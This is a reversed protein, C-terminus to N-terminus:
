AKNRSLGVEFEPFERMIVHDDWGEGDLRVPCRLNANVTHLLKEAKGCAPISSSYKQDGAADTHFRRSNHTVLGLIDRRTM